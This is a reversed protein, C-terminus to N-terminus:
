RQPIDGRQLAPINSIQKETVNMGLFINIGLVPSITEQPSKNRMIGLSLDPSLAVANEPVETGV